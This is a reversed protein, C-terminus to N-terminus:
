LDCSRCYYDGIVATTMMLIPAAIFYGCRLRLYQQVHSRLTSAVVILDPSEFLM